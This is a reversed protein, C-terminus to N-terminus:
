TMINIYIMLIIYRLSKINEYYKNRLDKSVYKEFLQIEDEIKNINYQDESNVFLTEYTNYAINQALLSVNENMFISLSVNLLLPYIFLKVMEKKRPINSALKFNNSENKFLKM